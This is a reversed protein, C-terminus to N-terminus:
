ICGKSGYVAVRIRNSIENVCEGPSHGSVYPMGGYGSRLDDLLRNILRTPSSHVDPTSSISKMGDIERPTLPSGDAAGHAEADEDTTGQNPPMTFVSSALLAMAAAVLLM